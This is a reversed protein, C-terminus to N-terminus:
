GRSAISARLVGRARWQNPDVPAPQKAFIEEAFIAAEAMPM